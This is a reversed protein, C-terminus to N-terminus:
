GNCTWICQGDTCSWHGACDSPKLGVCDEPGSCKCKEKVFTAGDHPWYSIYEGELCGHPCAYSCEFPAPVQPEGNCSWQVAWTAKLVGSECRGHFADQFETVLSCDNPFHPPECVDPGPESGPDTPTTEAVGPDPAVVEKAVGPDLVEGTDPSGSSGGCGIVVAAITCLGLFQSLFQVLEVAPV